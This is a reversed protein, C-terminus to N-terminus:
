LRALEDDIRRVEELLRARRAELEQRRSGKPSRLDRYFARVESQRVDSRMLNNSAALQREDASMRALMCITNYGAAAMTRPVVGDAIAEYALVIQSRASKGYRHDLTSRLVAQDEPSLKERAIVLLEGIRLFQERISEWLDSIRTLFEDLSNPVHSEPLPPFIEGDLAPPPPPEVVTLAGGGSLAEAMYPSSTVDAVPPRKRSRSPPKKVVQFDRGAVPDRRRAM